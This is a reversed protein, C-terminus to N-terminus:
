TITYKDYEENSENKVNNEYIYFWPEINLKNLHKQIQKGRKTPKIKM